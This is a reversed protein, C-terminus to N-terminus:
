QPCFRRAIELGTMWEIREGYHKHLRDIAIQFVKLGSKTGNGYLTQSHTYFILCKHKTIADVFQGSRGDDAIYKGADAQIDAASTALVIALRPSGVCFVARSALPRQRVLTPPM